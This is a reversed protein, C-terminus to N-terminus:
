LLRINNIPWIVAKLKGQLLHCSVPGFNRSDFSNEKNDGEVWIHNAPIDIYNGNPLLLREHEIAVIRKCLTHKPSIPNKLSVIDGKKFSNTCKNKSNFVKKLNITKDIISINGFSNFTPLMSDGELFNIDLIFQDIFIYWIIHRTYLYTNYSSKLLKNLISIYYFANSM